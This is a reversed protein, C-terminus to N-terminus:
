AKRWRLRALAAIGAAAVASAALVAARQAVSADLWAEATALGVSAAIHKCRATWTDNEPLLVVAAYREDCPCHFLTTFVGRLTSPSLSQLVHQRAADM